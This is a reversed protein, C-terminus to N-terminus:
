RTTKRGAAQRGRGRRRRGGRAACSNVGGKAKMFTALSSDQPKHTMSYRLARAWKGVTLRHIKRRDVTCSIVAGFPDLKRPAAKGKLLLCWRAHWLESGEKYWGSVLAFVAELYGYIANRARQKRYRWFNSRVSHLHRYLTDIQEEDRMEGPEDWANQDVLVKKIRLLRQTEEFTMADYTRNPNRNLKEAFRIRDFLSEMSYYGINLRKLIEHFNAIIATPKNAQL